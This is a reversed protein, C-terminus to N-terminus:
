VHMGRSEPPVVGNLPKSTERSNGPELGYCLVIILMTGELVILSKVDCALDSTSIVRRAAVM